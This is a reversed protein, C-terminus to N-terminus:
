HESKILRYEIMGSKKYQNTCWKNKIFFKIADINHPNVYASWYQNTRLSFYQTLIYLAQSAYGSRKHEPHTAINNIVYNQNTGKPFTIGIVVLLQNDIKFSYEAGSTDNQIYELWEKDISGIHKILSPESFWSKYLSFEEDTFLSMKM